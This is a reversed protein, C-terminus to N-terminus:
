KLKNCTDSAYIALPCGFLKSWPRTTMSETEREQFSDTCYVAFRTKEKKMETKKLIELQKKEFFFIKQILINEYSYM